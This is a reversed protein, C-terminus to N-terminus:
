QPPSLVTRPAGTIRFIRFRDDDSAGNMVTLALISFGAGDNWLTPYRINIADADTSAPNTVV